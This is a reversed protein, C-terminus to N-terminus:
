HEFKCGPELDWDVQIIIILNQNQYNDLEDKGGRSKPLIHDKTMLVLRGNEEAYLNFHPSQDGPNVDLVMKTGVIGCCVCSPNDKFVHYRQSNMRVLYDVGDINYNKKNGNKAKTIHSFVEEPDFEAIHFLRKKAKMKALDMQVTFGDFEIGQPQCDLIQGLQRKANELCETKSLASDFKWTITAIAKYTVM